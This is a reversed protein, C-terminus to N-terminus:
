NISTCIVMIRNSVEIADVAVTDGIVAKEAEGLDESNRGFWSAM